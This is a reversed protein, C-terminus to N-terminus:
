IFLQFAFDFLKLTLLPSQRSPEGLGLALQLVRQLHETNLRSGTFFVFIVLLLYM